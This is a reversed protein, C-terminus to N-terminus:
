VEGLIKLEIGRIRLEHQLDNLYQVDEKDKNNLSEGRRKKRDLELIGVYDKKLMVVVEINSSNILATTMIEVPDTDKDIARKVEDVDAVAIEDSFKDSLLLEISDYPVLDNHCTKEDFENKDNYYHKLSDYKLAIDLLPRTIVCCKGYEQRGASTGMNLALYYLRLGKEYRNSFDVRRIGYVKNPYNMGACILEDQKDSHLRSFEDLTMNNSEACIEFRNKFHGKENLIKYLVNIEMNISFALGAKLENVKSKDKDPKGEFRDHYSSVNGKAIDVLRPLAM